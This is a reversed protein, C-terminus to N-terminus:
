LSQEQEIVNKELYKHLITASVRESKSYFLRSTAVKRRAHIWAIPLIPKETAVDFSTASKSKDEDQVDAMHNQSGQAIQTMLSVQAARKNLIKKAANDCAPNV